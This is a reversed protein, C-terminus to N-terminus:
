FNGVLFFRKMFPRVLDIFNQLVSILNIFNQLVSIETVSLYFKSTGRAPSPYPVLAGPLALAHSPDDVRSFFIHPKKPFVCTKEPFVCM